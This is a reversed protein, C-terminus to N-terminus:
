QLLGAIERLLTKPDVPKEIFKNVPIYDEDTESSFHFPLKQNIATLMIIPVDKLKEHRRFDYTLHFGDSQTEMMVDVIALDPQIEQAKQWAENRNGATTVQYGASELVPTLAQVLDADDDVLLIHKNEM